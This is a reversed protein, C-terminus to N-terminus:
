YTYYQIFTCKVSYRFLCLSDIVGLSSFGMIIVTAIRTTNPLWAGLYLVGLSLELFPYIFGYFYWKRALWDYTAYGEAFGKINLLKFASFVLFFGAMFQNMWKLWHVEGDYFNSIFTTGLIYAAILLLPFYARLGSQPLTTKAISTNNIENTIPHLQYKGVSAIASNLDTLSPPTDAEIQLLPPDFTLSVINIYPLLATKIKEICSVCHMGVIRYHIKM